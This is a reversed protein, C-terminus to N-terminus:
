KRATAAVRLMKDLEVPINAEAQKMFESEGAVETRIMGRRDLFVLHPVYLPHPDMLPIQLFAMVAARASYGVPFPPHFRQQFDALDASADDNFACEIVQVGRASYKPAMENLFNTLKQCHPCHTDIFVLLVVKGRYHALDLPPAGPRLISFSPALRPAAALAAALTLLVALRM